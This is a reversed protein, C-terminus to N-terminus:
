INNGPSDKGIICEGKSDFQVRESVSVMDQFLVYIYENQLMERATKNYHGPTQSHILAIIDFYALTM